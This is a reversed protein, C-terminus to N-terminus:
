LQHVIKDEPLVSKFAGIVADVGEDEKLSLRLQTVKPHWNEDLRIVFLNGNALNYAHSDITITQWVADYKVALEREEAPSNHFHGKSPQWREVVTHTFGDALSLSASDDPVTQPLVV